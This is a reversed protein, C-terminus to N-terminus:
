ANSKIILPGSEQDARVPRYGISAILPFFAQDWLANFDVEAPGKGPDAQTAQPRDAHDHFL